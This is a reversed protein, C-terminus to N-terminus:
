KMLVMKGTANFDGAQLRYLYIGSALNSADFVVEQFGSNRFGDVLVVVERGLMDYITLNVHSREPLAYAITTIPNFPNPYNQHLAYSVSVAVGADAILDDFPEGTNIWGGMGDMGDEGLKTFNFSDSTTDSEYVAYINYSYMGPPANVPVVQDRLRTLTFESGLNLNLPGLVPGYTSGNPLTVDIWAEIALTVPAINTLHVAFDFSGGTEPIEIPMDFPSMIARIQMSQDFCCFGMDCLTADPDTGTGADICASGWSLRYDNQVPYIFDPDEFINMYDDCPDGNANVGTIVGLGTPIAGAFDPGGSNHFDCYDFTPASTNFYISENTSNCGIVCNEADLGGSWCDIQAGYGPAVNDFITCNAITPTAVWIELGGGDSGASNGSVVCHDLNLSGDNVMFGGGYSTATNESITCQDITVQYCYQNYIGGGLQDCHNDSIVCNQMTGIVQAGYEAFWIGGAPGGNGQNSTITCNSFSANSNSEWSVAVIGGAGNSSGSNDHIYCGTVTADSEIIYLGGGQNATNFAIECDTITAVNGATILVGGAIWETQNDMVTCQTMNVDCTDYFCLGGGGGNSGSYNLNGSIECGTININSCQAFAGGGVVYATNNTLQCDSISVDSNECYIGGGCSDWMTSGIAKGYEVLCFSLHSSAPANIFRIGHWGVLPDAATFRISDPNTGIAELYGNVIFKYHGQFIVDVGEHINLTNGVDVYIEGNINYPNGTAYWDGSVPGSPIETASALGALLFIAIIIFSIKAKMQVEM